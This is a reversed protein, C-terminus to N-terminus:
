RYVRHIVVAAVLAYWFLGLAAGATLLVTALTGGSFATYGIALFLSAGRALQQLVLLSEFSHLYCDQNMFKIHSNSLLLAYLPVLIVGGLFLRSLSTGGKTAHLVLWAVFVQALQLPHARLAKARVKLEARKLEFLGRDSYVTHHIETNSKLLQAALKRRVEVWDEAIQAASEEGEPIPAAYNYVPPPMGSLFTTPDIETALFSANEATCENFTCDLIQCEKFQSGGFDCRVFTCGGFTVHLLTTGGFMCREFTCNKFTLGSIISEGRDDPRHFKCEHFDADSFILNPVRLHFRVGQVSRRKTKEFRTPLKTHLDDSKEITIEWVPYLVGFTARRRTPDQDNRWTKKIPKPTIKPALPGAWPDTPAATAGSQQQQPLLSEKATIEMKQNHWHEVAVMVGLTENAPTDVLPWRGAANWEAM